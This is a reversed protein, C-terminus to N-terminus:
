LIICRQRRRSTERASAQTDFYSVGRPYHVPHPTHSSYESCYRSMDDKKMQSHLFEISIRMSCCHSVHDLPIVIKRNWTRSDPDYCEIMRQHPVLRNFWTTTRLGYLKDDVSLLKPTVCPDIEFRSIFHWENTREDFAECRWGKPGKGLHNVGGAIYIKGHAAAGAASSRAKQLDAVKDWQNKSLDYREVEALYTYVAGHWDAGGIFYIFNGKAVICFDHRLNM